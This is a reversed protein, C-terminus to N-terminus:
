FHRLVGSGIPFTPDLQAVLAQASEIEVKCVEPLLIPFTFAQYSARASGRGLSSKCDGESRPLRVEPVQGFYSPCGMKDESKPKHIEHHYILSTSPTTSFCCSEWIRNVKLESEVRYFHRRLEDEYAVKM